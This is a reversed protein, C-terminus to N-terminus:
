RRLDYTLCDRIDGHLVEFFRESMATGRSNWLTAHAAGFWVHTSCPVKAAYCKGAFDM